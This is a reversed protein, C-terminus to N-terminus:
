KLAIRFLNEGPQVVHVIVPVREKESDHTGAPATVIVEDTPPPRDEDPRTRAPAHACGIASLAFVLSWLSSARVPGPDNQGKSEPAESRREPHGPSGSM